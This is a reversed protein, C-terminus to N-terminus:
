AKRRRRAALAALALLSLTATAPEPVNKQYYQVGIGETTAVYRYAGAGLEVPDGLEATATDGYLTWEANLDTVNAYRTLEKGTSETILFTEFNVLTNQSNQSWNDRYWINNGTILWRTTIVDAANEDLTITATLTLNKGLGFDGGATVIKGDTMFNITSGKAITSLISNGADYVTNLTLTNTAADGETTWAIQGTVNGLIEASKSLTAKTASGDATAFTVTHGAGVYLSQATAGADTTRVTIDNGRAEIANYTSATNTATVANGSANVLSSGVLKNKLEGNAVGDVSVTAGTIAWNENDSAYKSNNLASIASGTEQGTVTVTNNHLKVKADQELLLSAGTVRGWLTSISTTTGSMFNVTGGGVGEQSAADLMDFTHERDSGTGKINLTGGEMTVQAGTAMGNLNVTSDKKIHVTKIPMTSKTWGGEGINLEHVTINYTGANGVQLAYANITGSGGITTAVPGSSLVLAGTQTVTGEDNTAHVLNLTGDVTIGRMGWNNNIAAANLTAGSGVSIERTTSNSDQTRIVGATYTMGGENFRLSTDTAGMTISGVSGGGSFEVGGANVNVGNLAVNGTAKLLGAGNKEIIGNASGYGDSYIAINGSITLSDSSEGVNVDLDNRILLESAIENNTGTATIAGGFTNIKGGSVLSHGQLNLDTVLTTSSNAAEYAFTLKAVNNEEGKLSISKTIDNGNWGLVDYRQSGTSALELEAGAEIIIDGKFFTAGSDNPVAYTSTVKGSVITMSELTKNASEGLNYTNGALVDVVLHKASSYDDVNESNFIYYTNGNGNYAITDGELTAAYGNINWDVDATNKTGDGKIYDSLRATYHANSWGNGESRERVSETGSANSIIDVTGTLNLTSGSAVEISGGDFALGDSISLTGGGNVAINDQFVVAGNAGATLKLTKGSNVTWTGQTAAILQGTGGVKIETNAGIYMNMGVAENAVLTLNSNNNDGNLIYNSADPTDGSAETILGGIAMNGMGNNSLQQTATTSGKMLLTQGYVAGAHNGNTLNKWFNNAGQGAPVSSDAIFPGNATSAAGNYATGAVTFTTQGTGINKGENYNSEIAATGSFTYTVGGAEYAFSGTTLEGAEAPFINGALAAGILATLLVKPLHLKMVTIHQNYAQQAPLAKKRM